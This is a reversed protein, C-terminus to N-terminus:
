TVAKLASAVCAGFTDCFTYPGDVDGERIRAPLEPKGCAVAWAKAGAAWATELDIMTDGIM